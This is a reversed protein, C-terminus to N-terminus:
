FLRSSWVNLPRQQQDRTLKSFYNALGTAPDNLVPYTELNFKGPQVPLAACDSWSLKILGSGPTNTNGAYDLGSQNNGLFDQYFKFFWTRALLNAQPAGAAVQTNLVRLQSDFQYVKCESSAELGLLGYVANADTINLISGMLHLHGEAGNVCSIYDTAGTGHTGALFNVQIGLLSITAPEVPVFVAVNGIMNFGATGGVTNAEMGVNIVPRQLDAMLYPLCIGNIPLNGFDGYQPDGYFTIIIRGGYLFYRNNQVFTDGAKLAVTVQARFQDGQLLNYIFTLCYDLTKFPATKDGGTPADVGANAVYFVQKSLFAGVYLGDPQRELKNAPVDSISIAIPDIFDDTGTQEHTKKTPQYIIPLHQVKAM